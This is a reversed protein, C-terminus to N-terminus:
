AAGVEPQGRGCGGGCTLVGVEAGLADYLGEIDHILVTRQRVRVLGDEELTRLARAISEARAGIMSGLDYRTLPIDFQRSASAPAFRERMTLILRMLRARVSLSYASLVDNRSDTVDNALRALFASALKPNRELVSRFTKGDISCVVANTRAEAANQYDGGSFFTCYGFPEGATAIRVIVSNGSMDVKSISVVGSAVCYVGRCPDGEAYITQGRIFCTSTKADNILRRDIDTLAQWEPWTPATCAYCSLKKM